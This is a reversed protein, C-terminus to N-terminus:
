YAKQLILQSTKINERDVGELIWSTADRSLLVGSVGTKQATTEQGKRGFLSSFKKEKVEPYEAFYQKFKYDEGSLPAFGLMNFQKFIVRWHVNPQKYSCFTRFVMPTELFIGKDIVHVGSDPENIDISGDIISDKLWEVFEEGLATQEPEITEVPLSFDRHEGLSDLLEQARNLILAFDEIGAHDDSLLALWVNLAQQDEAIWKFGKAPMINHALLIIIRRVVWSSMGGGRRIRYYRMSVTMPEEYPLWKGIFVGDESSNIVTRNETVKGIDFLLAASFFVYDWLSDAHPREHHHIQLVNLARQLGAILIEGPPGQNTIPLIQVFAAFNHLLPHYYLRYYDDQSAIQKSIDTILKNCKPLDLLEEASLVPYLHKERFSTIPTACTKKAKDKTFLTDM